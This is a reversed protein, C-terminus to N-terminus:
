ASMEGGLQHNGLFKAGAPPRHWGIIAQQRPEDEYRRGIPAVSAPRETFRRAM